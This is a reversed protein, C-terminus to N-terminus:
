RTVGLATLRTRIAQHVADLQAAYSGTAADGQACSTLGSHMLSDEDILLEGLQADPVAQIRQPLDADADIQTGIRDITQGCVEPTRRLAAVVDDAHDDMRVVPAGTESRLYDRASPVEPGSLASILLWAALGVGALVCAVVAVIGSRAGMGKLM